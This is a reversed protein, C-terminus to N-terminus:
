YQHYQRPDATAAPAALGDEPGDPPEQIAEQGTEGVAELLVDVVSPDFQTGANSLLKGGAEGNWALPVAAVARVDGFPRGSAGRVGVDDAATM